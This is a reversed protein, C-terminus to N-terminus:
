KQALDLELYSMGGLTSYSTVQVGKKKCYKLLNKSTLYPHVEIQNVAPVIGAGNILDRLLAIGFNSVGINRVLGEKVLEEMAKWTEMIPVDDM